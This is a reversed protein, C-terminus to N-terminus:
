WTYVFALSHEYTNLSTLSCHDAVKKASHVPKLRANNKTGARWLVINPVHLNTGARLGDHCQNLSLDPSAKGCYSAAVQIPNHHDIAGATHEKRWDRWTVKPGVHGQNRV